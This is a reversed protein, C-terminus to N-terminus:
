MKPLSRFYELESFSEATFAQIRTGAQKWDTRGLGAKVCTEELFREASWRFEVAVRPLLVGRHSETSVLLGHHGVKIQELTIDQLPSLISLEIVIESLERISVSSFRPDETAAARACYAVVAVLSDDSALRGICGRLQKSKRLTVFAGAPQKLNLDKPFDELSEGREVAFELARRAVELLTRKEGDALLPM